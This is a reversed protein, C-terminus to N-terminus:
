IKEGNTDDSLTGSKPYIKAALYGIAKTVFYSMKVFSDLYIYAQDRVTSTWQTETPPHTLDHLWRMLQVCTGLAQKWCTPDTCHHQKRHDGSM